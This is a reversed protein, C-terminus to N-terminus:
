YQARIVPRHRVDRPTEQAYEALWRLYDAWAGDHLKQWNVNVITSTKTLLNWLYAEAGSLILETPEQTVDTEASLTPVSTTCILRLNFQSIPMEMLMLKTGGLPKWLDGGLDNWVEPFQGPNTRKLVHHLRYFDVSTTNYSPPAVGFWPNPTPLQLDYVVGNLNTGQTYTANQPVHLGQPIGSIIAQGLDMMDLTTDNPQISSYYNVGLVSAPVGTIQAIEVRSNVGGITVTSTPAQLTEGFDNFYTYTFTYTGPQFAGVGDAIETVSLAVSPTPVTNVQKALRGWDLIRSYYSQPIEFDAARHRHPYSRTLAYNTAKLWDVPRFVKYLEYPTGAPPGTTDYPSPWSGVITFTGSTQVWGGDAAVRRWIVNSAAGPNLLIWASDWEDDPEARTTDVLSTSTASEVVGASDSAIDGGWFNM